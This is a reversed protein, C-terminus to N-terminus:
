FFCQSKLTVLYILKLLEKQRFFMHSSIASFNVVEEEPSKSKGQEKSVRTLRSGALSAITTFVMSKDELKSSVAILLRDRKM